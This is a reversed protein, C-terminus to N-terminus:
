EGPNGVTVAQDYMTSWAGATAIGVCGGRQKVPPFVPM